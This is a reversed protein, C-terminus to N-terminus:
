SHMGDVMWLGDKNIINSSLFQTKAFFESKRIGVAKCNLTM